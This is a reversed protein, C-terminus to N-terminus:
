EATREFLQRRYDAVITRADACLRDADFEVEAAGSEMVFRGMPLSADGVLDLALGTQASVVDQLLAGAGPHHRLRLPRDAQRAANKSLLASLHDPLMDRAVAPLVAEVLATLVPEIALLVAQRAEHYTFACDQLQRLLEDRAQATQQAQGTVADDWGAAYGKEYAELKVTELAASEIEIRGRAATPVDFVELQYRRPTM